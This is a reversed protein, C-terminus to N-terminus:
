KKLMDRHTKAAQDAEEAAKTYMGALTECHQIMDIKHSVVGLTSPDPNKRYAEAMAMEDKAHQRLHAAEEDYWAALAAHDNKAIEGIPPSAIMACAALGGLVLGCLVSRPIWRNWVTMIGEQKSHAAGNMTENGFPKGGTRNMQEISIREHECL